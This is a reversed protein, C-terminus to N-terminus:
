PKSFTLLHSHGLSWPHVTYPQKLATISAIPLNTLISM